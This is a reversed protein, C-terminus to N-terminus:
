YTVRFGGTDRGSSSPKAGQSDGAEKVGLGNLLVTKEADIDHFRADINAVRHAASDRERGRREKEMELCAIKLYAKSRVFVRDVTGSHTRIDQVGRMNGKPVTM